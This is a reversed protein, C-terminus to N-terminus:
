AGAHRRCRWVLLGAGAIAVGATTIGVALGVVLSVPADDPDTSVDPSPSPSPTGPWSPSVVGPPRSMSQYMLSFGTATGSSDTVFRIILTGDSYFPGPLPDTLNGTIDVPLVSTDPFYVSVFDLNNEV